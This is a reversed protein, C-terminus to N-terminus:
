LPPPERHLVDLAHALNEHNQYGQCLPFYQGERGYVLTPFSEAGIERAREFQAEALALASRNKLADTSSEAVGFAAFLDRYSEADSLVKGEEFNLKLLAHALHMTNTEPKSATIIAFAMAPMTSDQITNRQRLLARHAPSFVAGTMQEVRPIAREIYDAFDGLPGIRSGLMLGGSLASFDFRDAFDHALRSAVEAMGWCWGCYGDFVYVIEPKAPPM